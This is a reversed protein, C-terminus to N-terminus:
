STISVYFGFDSCTPESCLGRYVSNAIRRLHPSKAVDDGGGGAWVLVYDALHRSIRHAEREPSTLIRGLLAIHEHNWTNGDALTTRNAIGAIQYGYDWWAMIRADQPTNEKLWIQAPSVVSVITHSNLALFCFQCNNCVYAQRYDDVIVTKGDSSRGKTIITPHSMGKAMQHCQDLFEFATPLSSRVLHAVICFRTVQVLLRSWRFYGQGGTLAADLGVDKSGNAAKNGNTAAGNKGKKSKSGGANKGKKKGTQSRESTDEEVPPAVKGTGGNTSSATGAGFIAYDGVLECVADYGWTIVTGMCIGALVSAIPATLLILRVMRHSFYYAAATYVALFSSSDNWRWLVTSLLGYPAMLVVAASLYQKYADPSAAQHEAVSDVLPNGTKTHQVFLGRVRSSIPGFYGTPALLAVVGAAALAAGGFVMVYVKLVDSRRVVGDRQKRQRELLLHVLELLQLGGFGALAGLQELSKLPTWGVVPVQIALATGVLYFISYARHLKQSYRGLLVLTGAHLAVLNLVFVYGGWAAVMGFYALGTALAGVYTSTTARPGGHLSWTWAAFTLVMMSVAISENDYGGGISRMIHAPVISMVAAAAVASVYPFLPNATSRELGWATGMTSHLLQVLLQTLPQLLHKHLPAHLWDLPYHHSAATTSEVTTTWTLLAVALTALVGFWTPIFVCIDNISM